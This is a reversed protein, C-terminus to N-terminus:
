YRLSIDDRGTIFGVELSCRATCVSGEVLSVRRPRVAAAISHKSLPSAALHKSCRLSPGQGRPLWYTKSSSKDDMQHSWDCTAQHPYGGTLRRYSAKGWSSSPLSIGTTDIMANIQHDITTLKEGKKVRRSSFKM